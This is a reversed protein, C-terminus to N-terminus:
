VTNHSDHVRKICKDTQSLVRSKVRLRLYPYQLGCTRLRAPLTYIRTSVKLLDLKKALVEKLTVEDVEARISAVCASSPNTEVEVRCKDMRNVIEQIKNLTPLAIEETKLVDEQGESVKASLCNTVNVRNNFLDWEFARIEDLCSEFSKRYPISKDSLLSTVLSKQEVIKTNYEDAFKNIKDRIELGINLLKEPLEQNLTVSKNYYRELLCNSNTLRTELLNLRAQPTFTAQAGCFLAVLFLALAYTKM